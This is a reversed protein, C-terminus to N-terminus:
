ARRPPQFIDSAAIQPESIDNFIHFELAIETIPDIEIVPPESKIVNISMLSINVDRFPLQQDQQYDDDVIFPGIYHMELFSLFGLAPDAQRHTQYHEILFPIKLLQHFETYAMVHVVIFLIGILRKVGCLYYEM